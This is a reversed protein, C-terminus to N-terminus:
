PVPELSCPGAPTGASCNAMSNATLEGRSNSGWCRWTKFGSACAHTAGASINLMGSLGKVPMPSSVLGPSSLQINANGSGSTDITSGSIRLGIGLQGNTNLGWCRATQDSLIACTFGSGASVVQPYLLGETQQPSTAPSSSTTGIGLEGHENTGWCKVSYGSSGTNTVIACAHELGASVQKASIGPVVDATLETASVTGRGLQGRDNFGWCLVRQTGSNTDIGIGCVFRGGSSIQIMRYRDLNGVVSAAELYQPSNGFSTHWCYVSSNEARIACDQAGGAAIGRMGTLDNGSSDKIHVPSSPGIWCLVAGMEAPTAGAAPTDAIVCGRNLGSGFGLSIEKVAGIGSPSLPSFANATAGAGTAQGYCAVVSNQLVCTTQSGASAFGLDALQQAPVRPACASLLHLALSAMFLAATKVYINASQVDLRSRNM